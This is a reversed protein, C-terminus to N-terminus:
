IRWSECKRGYSISPNISIGEPDFSLGLGLSASNGHSNARGQVSIGLSKSINLGSYNNYTLGVGANFGLEDYGFLEGGVGGSVGVTLNPKMNFEQKIKDTGNFEDPIGRMERTIAGANLDWGLGVWTAQQNMKIGGSYELYHIVEM